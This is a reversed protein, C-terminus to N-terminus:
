IKKRSNIFVEHFVYRRESKLNTNSYLCLNGTPMSRQKNMDRHSNQTRSPFEVAIPVDM